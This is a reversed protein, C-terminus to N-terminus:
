IAEYTGDTFKWIQRATGGQYRKTVNRHFAPRVFYLTKGSADYSAESAQDLPIFSKSKTKINIKVLRDDPKKNYARTTYVIEGSPTWTTAFSADSEYTWRTTLGGNIPMTYIETPGEYNASFSITKGDPSINPYTEEEPHTTLRQAIGGSLPVTWIDGEASFVIKDNHIDPFQYYGEFGQAQLTANFLLCCLTLCTLIFPTKIKLM